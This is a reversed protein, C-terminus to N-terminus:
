VATRAQPLAFLARLVGICVGGVDQGRGHRASALWADAAAGAGRWSLLGLASGGGFVLLLAHANSVAFRHLCPTQSCRAADGASCSHLSASGSTLRQVKCRLCAASCITTHEQGSMMGSDCVSM